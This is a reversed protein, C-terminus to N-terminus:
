LYTLLGTKGLGDGFRIDIEKGSDASIEIREM